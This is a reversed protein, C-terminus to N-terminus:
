TRQDTSLLTASPFHFIILSIDGLTLTGSKGFDWHRHGLRILCITKNIEPFITFSKSIPLYISIKENDQRTYGEPNKSERPTQREYAKFQNAVRYIKSFQYFYHLYNKGISAYSFNTWQRHRLTASFALQTDM